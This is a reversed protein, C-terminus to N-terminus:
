GVWLTYVTSIAMGGPYFILQQVVCPKQTHVHRNGAVHLGHPDM